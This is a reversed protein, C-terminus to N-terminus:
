CLSIWSFLFLTQPMYPCTPSGSAMIYGYVMAPWCYWLCLRPYIQPKKRKLPLLSRRFAPRPRAYEGWCVSSRLLSCNILAKHHRIHVCYGSNGFSYPHSRGACSFVPRNGLRHDYHRRYHIFHKEYIHIISHQVPCISLQKCLGPM